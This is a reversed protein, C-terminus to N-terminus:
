REEAWFGKVLEIFKPEFLGNQLWDILVNATMVAIPVNLESALNSIRTENATVILGAGGQRAQILGAIQLMTARSLPASVALKAEVLIPLGFTKVLGPSAIAFDAGFDASPSSSVPFNARKFARELLKEFELEPRAVESAMIKQLDARIERWRRASNPTGQKKEIPQRPTITRLFTDLYPAWSKPDLTGVKVLNFSALDSPLSSTEDGFLLLPKRMGAAMGIEYAINSSTPRSFVGVIFDSEQIFSVISAVSPGSSQGRDVTYCSIGRQELEKRLLSREASHEAAIFCTLANHVQAAM